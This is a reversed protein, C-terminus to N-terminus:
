LRRSIKDLTIVSESISLVTVTDGDLGLGRLVARIDREVADTSALSFYSYRARSPTKELLNHAVYGSRRSMADVVTGAEETTFNVMILSYFKTVPLKPPEASPQIRPAAASRDPELSPAQTCAM